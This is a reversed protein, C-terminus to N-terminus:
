WKRNNLIDVVILINPWVRNLGFQEEGRPHQNTRRVAVGYGTMHHRVKAGEQQRKMGEIAPGSCYPDIRRSYGSPLLSSLRVSAAPLSLSAGPRDGTHRPARV